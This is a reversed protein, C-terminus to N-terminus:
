SSSKKINPYILYSNKGTDKSLNLNNFDPYVFNFEPIKVYNKKKM